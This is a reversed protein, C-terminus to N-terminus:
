NLTLKTNKCITKQQTWFVQIHMCTCLVYKESKKPKFITVTDMCHMIESVILLQQDTLDSQWVTMMTMM